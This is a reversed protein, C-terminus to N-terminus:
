AFLCQSIMHFISEAIDLMEDETINFYENPDGEQGYPVGAAGDAQVNEGDEPEKEEEGDDVQAKPETENSALDEIGKLGGAGESDVQGDDSYDDGSEEEASQKEEVVPKTTDTM